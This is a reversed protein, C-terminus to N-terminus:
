EDQSETSKNMLEAKTTQKLFRSGDRERTANNLFLLIFENHAQQAIFVAMLKAGFVVVSPVMRRTKFSVLKKM